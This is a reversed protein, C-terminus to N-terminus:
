STRLLPHSPSEAASSRSFRLSLGWQCCPWPSDRGMSGQPGFENLIFYAFTRPDIMVGTEMEIEPVEEPSGPLTGEERM